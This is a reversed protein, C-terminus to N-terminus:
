VTLGIHCMAAEHNSYHQPDPLLILKGSLGVTFQHEDGGTDKLTIQLSQPTLIATFIELIDSHLRKCKTHVSLLSLEDTQVEGYVLATHKSPRRGGSQCHDAHRTQVSTQHM